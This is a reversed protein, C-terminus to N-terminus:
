SRFPKMDPRQAGDTDCRVGDRATAASPAAATATIPKLIVAVVAVVAVSGENERNKLPADSM